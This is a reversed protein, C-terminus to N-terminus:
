IRLSLQLVLFFSTMARLQALACDLRTKEDKAADFAKATERIVQKARLYREAGSM